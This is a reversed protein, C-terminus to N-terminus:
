VRRIAADLLRRAAGLYFRPSTWRRRRRQAMLKLLCAEVDRAAEGDLTGDSEFRRCLRIAYSDYAFLDAFAIAVIAARASAAKTATFDRFFLSESGVLWPRDLEFPDGDLAVRWASRPELHFLLFGHDNLFTEIAGHLRQGQHVPGHWTEVLVGAVDALSRSAGVLAEYEASHVDLKIFDPPPCLSTAVAEDISIAPVRILRETTRPPSGIRQPFLELLAHNPPYVSSTSRNHALHLDIDGTESWLGKPVHTTEGRSPALVQADPDPEFAVVHVGSRVRNFPDILGGRAGGDVVTIRHGLTHKQYEASDVFLAGDRAYM